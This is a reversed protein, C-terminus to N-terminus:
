IKGIAGIVYFRLAPAHENVGIAVYHARHLREYIQAYSLALFFTRQFDDGALPDSFNRSASENGM